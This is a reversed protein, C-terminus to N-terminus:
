PWNMSSRAPRASAAQALPPVAGAAECASVVFVTVGAARDTSLRVSSALSALSRPVSVKLSNQSPSEFSSRLATPPASANVMHFASAASASLSRSASPASCHRAFWRMDSLCHAREICLQAPEHEFAAKKRVPLCDFIPEGDKSTPAIESGGRM